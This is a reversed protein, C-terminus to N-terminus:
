DTTEFIWFKEAKKFNLVKNKFEMLDNLVVPLDFQTNQIMNENITKKNKKVKLLLDRKFNPNLIEVESNRFLCVSLSDLKSSFPVISIM